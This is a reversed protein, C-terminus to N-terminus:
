TLKGFPIQVMIYNMCKFVNSCTGKLRVNILEIYINYRTCRITYIKKIFDGTEIWESSKFGRERERLRFSL